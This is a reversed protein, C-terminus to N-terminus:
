RAWRPHVATEGRAVTRLVRYLRSDRLAEAQRPLDVELRLVGPSDYHTTAGSAELVERIPRNAELVHGRFRLIGNELAVAGLAQVLLTGLGRGQYEDIVTVAAEATEPDDKSRVYRAVGVGPRGREDEALALWAFHDVYDIETLFALMDSSLEDVPALFRRFRSESSLREFAAALHPKDEPVLPRLMIRTGDRLVVHTTRKEVFQRNM